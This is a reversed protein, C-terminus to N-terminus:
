QGEFALVAVPRSDRDWRRLTIKADVVGLQEQIVAIDRSAQSIDKESANVAEITASRTGTYANNSQRARARHKKFTEM